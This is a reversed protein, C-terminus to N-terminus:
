FLQDNKVILEEVYIDLLRRQKVMTYSPQYQIPTEQFRRDVKIDNNDLTTVPTTVHIM